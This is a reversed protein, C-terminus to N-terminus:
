GENLSGDKLLLSRNMSDALQENHTVVVFGIGLTRNLEAILEQIEM